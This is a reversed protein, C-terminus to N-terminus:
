TRKRSAALVAVLRRKMIADPSSARVFHRQHAPLCDDGDNVDANRESAVKPL